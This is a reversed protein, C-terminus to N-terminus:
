GRALGALGSGYHPNFLDNIFLLSYAISQITENENLKYSDIPNRSTIGVLLEM